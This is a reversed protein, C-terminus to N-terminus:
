KKDWMVDEFWLSMLYALAAIKYEHKPAYSGLVTHIHTYAIEPDIGVRPQLEIGASGKGFIRDVASTWKNQPYGDFEDPIAEVPPLCNTIKDAAGFAQDVKSMPVPLFPEKMTGKPYWNPRNM